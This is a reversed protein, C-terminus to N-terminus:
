FFSFFFCSISMVVVVRTEAVLLMTNLKNKYNEREVVWEINEKSQVLM